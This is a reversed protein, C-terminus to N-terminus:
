ALANIETELAAISTMLQDFPEPAGFLVESMGEYDARLGRALAPGPSLRLTPPRARDYHASAARFYVSKHAAVAELLALDGLARAKVDSRALQILDYYHRSMREGLPKEADRHHLMHLITAKEWFTREAALTKITVAPELLLDPFHDHLFPRVERQEAPLHESRAGFELRVAPSVYAPASVAPLSAPYAFILTQRDDDAVRLDVPGGLAAAMDTKLADCVPGAIVEIALRELDELLAKRAANSAANTPDREGTFGLDHRDLSLDIDESFRRILGYAKSLSTGGKFILGPIKDGLSFVRKLTWSVWFDKEVIAPQVKMRAATEAFAAARIERPERAFADV